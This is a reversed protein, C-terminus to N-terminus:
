KNFLKILETFDKLKYKYYQEEEIYLPYYKKESQVTNMDNCWMKLRAFKMPDEVDERGKTEVIYIEKETKKVIFDPYYNSIDGDSTKYDIKFHVALYNKAFSIIDECSDLFTAM